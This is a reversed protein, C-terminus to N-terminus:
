YVFLVILLSGASLQRLRLQMECPCLSLFQEVRYLQLIGPM